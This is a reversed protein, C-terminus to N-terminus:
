EHEMWFNEKALFSEQSHINIQMFGVKVDEFGFGLIIKSKDESMRLGIVFEVTKRIVFFPRSLKREYSGGQELYLFRHAYEKGRTITEHIMFLHGKGFQVGNSTGRLRAFALSFFFFFM